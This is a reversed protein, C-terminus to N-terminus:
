LPTSEARITRLLAILESEIEPLRSLNCTTLADLIPRCAPSTALLVIKIALSADISTHDMLSKLVHVDGSHRVLRVRAKDHGSAPRKESRLDTQKTQM